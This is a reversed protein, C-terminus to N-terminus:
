LNRRVEQAEAWIDEAEEKARAAARLLWRGAREAWEEAIREANAVTRGATESGPRDASAGNQESQSM